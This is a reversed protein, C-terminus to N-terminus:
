GEQRNPTAVNGLLFSLLVRGLSEGTCGYEALWVSTWNGMEYDGGKYGQFTKGLATRADALMAGVTVNEALEFALDEYYGRYSHPSTFGVKVTKDPDHAELIGILDELDLHEPRLLDTSV